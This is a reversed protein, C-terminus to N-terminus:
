FSLTVLITYHYFFLWSPFENFHGSKALRLSLGSLKLRTAMDCHDNPTRRYGTTDM